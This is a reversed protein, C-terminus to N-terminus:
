SISYLSLQAHISGVSRAQVDQASCDLKLGILSYISVRREESIFEERREGREERRERRRADVERKERRGATTEGV